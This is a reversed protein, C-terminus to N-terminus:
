PAGGTESAVADMFVDELSSTRPHLARLSLGARVLADAVPPGLDVGPAGEVRYRGQKEEAVNAVAPIARLVRLIEDCAGGVEVDLVAPQGKGALNAMTDQAVIRGQHIIIVRECVMSVEPLIHTSLLVTHEKALDRIMQRIEVIQRPDLGVTPEDLILVPPNGILAQALGVRQRFGKSLNRTLRKAVPGVGCREIVRDVEARRKSRPVGKVVAVYSLFKSVVMEPYLAVSEPLYGIRRKVDIPNERIDFGAVKASGSSAPSFGTLIRMTTTKGAGNPGLFGIIEGQEVHFSVHDIAALPGYYKTLANVEIM